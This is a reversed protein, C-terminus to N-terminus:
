HRQAASPSWVPNLADLFRRVRAVDARSAFPGYKNLHLLAKGNRLFLYHNGLGKVQLGAVQLAQCLEEFRVPSSHVNWYVPGSVYGTITTPTLANLIPSPKEEGQATLVWTAVFVAIFLKNLMAM